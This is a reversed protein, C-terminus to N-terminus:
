FTLRLGFRGNDLLGFQYNIKEPKNKYASNITSNYHQISHKIQVKGVISLAIGGDLMIEGLSVISIGIYYYGNYYLDSESNYGNNSNNTEIGNIMLILGGTMTVISGAILFGGTSRLNKGNKYKLAINPYTSLINLVESKTLLTNEQYVRAGKIQLNPRNIEENISDKLTSFLNSSSGFIIYQFLICFVTISFVKKM